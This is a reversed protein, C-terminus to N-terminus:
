CGVLGGVTALFFVREDRPTILAASTHASLPSALAQVYLVDDRVYQYSNAWDSIIYTASETGDGVLQTSL